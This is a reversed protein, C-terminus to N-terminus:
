EFKLLISTVIVKGDNRTTETVKTLADACYKASEVKLKDIRDSQTSSMRVEIKGIEFYHKSPETNKYIKIKQPDTPTKCEIKNTNIFSVRNENAVENAVDIIGGVTSCSLYQLVFICLVIKKM